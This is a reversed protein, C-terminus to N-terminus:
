LLNPLHKDYQDLTLRVPTQQAPSAEQGTPQRLVRNAYILLFLFIQQVEGGSGLSSHPVLSRSRAKDHHFMQYVPIGTMNCSFRQIGGRFSSPPSLKNLLM